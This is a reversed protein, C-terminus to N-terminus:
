NVHDLRDRRARTCIAFSRGRARTSRQFSRARAYLQSFEPDITARKSRM